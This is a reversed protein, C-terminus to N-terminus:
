NDTNNDEWTILPCINNYLDSIRAGIFVFPKSIYKSIDTEILLAVTGIILLVFITLAGIVALTELPYEFILPIVIYLIWIVCSGILGVFLWKLLKGINYWMKTEIINSCIKPVRSNEFSTIVNDLTNSTVFIIVLHLILKGLLIVPLFIISAIYRWFYPCMSKFDSVETSWLWSYFRATRSTTNLNYM